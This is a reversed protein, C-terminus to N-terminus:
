RYAVETTITTRNEVNIETEIKNKIVTYLDTEVEPAEISVVLSYRIKSNYKKWNTRLKWWGTKPYIAIKNSQSLESATGEWIDSHISGVNRNTSGIIWRSSDNKVEGNDGEDERMAKNIRKLFNEHDETANNVDFILGCSPYRYKDKWGIEGPGPEIYYSLTVRMRVTEDGLGLLVEDPWPINHIHMEKSTCSGNVKKQFPQIEDEIIINVRNSASWIAKSLSPVGYGCIRLLKRYDSRKPVANEFTGKKMVETWEASHVILARVTEPWLHPYHHVISAGLWAAQATASSTMSITDFSKGLQFDKGTTLLQLDSFETYFNSRKDYSLNGGELVIEPKVPWKDAFALSSSTFPSYCGPEVVPQYTGNYKEPIEYKSTFAGVTIANWAQGPDEVTHNIVATKYGESQTIELISTNGASVFMLKKEIKSSGIDNAGSIISDIAGSWSSPRGDNEIANTEGTIAMCIIRNTDPNQIEALNIANETVYGYLERDNDNSRDFLKVSELFHNVVVPDRSEIKDELTFYSAVGAMRTGHNAIDNVGKELDVTHMNEDSLLPALLDHGNNVGTDLICISTNSRSSVDLREVLDQVFERQELESLNEYFSTPTVMIRFEAIRSSLWQLDSLQQKNARVGLVVREPFIIRQDKYEISREDCIKFFEDIVEPVNEKAEYMLWVECWQSTTTPIKNKDSLWLADVLALNISEITGIVKEASETEKYKNMKKIFFDRKNNPVYVTTSEIIKNESDEEQKVNCIRVHQTTNELSKTILDFGAQGKIELYVGHRSAVSVTGIEKQNQNAKEWASFLDYELKEAHSRRSARPPYNEIGGGGNAPKFDFSQGAKSIYLNSLKSEM